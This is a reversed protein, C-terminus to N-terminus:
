GSSTERRRPRKRAEVAHRPDHRAAPDPLDDGEYRTMRDAPRRNRRHLLDASQEAAVVHGDPLDRHGALTRGRERQRFHRRDQQRVLKVGYGRLPSGGNALERRVQGAVQVIGTVQGPFAHDYVTVERVVVHDGAARRGCRASDDVKGTGVHFRRQRVDPIAQPAAATGVLASTM